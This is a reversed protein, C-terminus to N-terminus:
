TQKPVREHDSVQSSYRLKVAICSGWTVPLFLFFSRGDTVVRLSSTNVWMRKFEKSNRKETGTALFKM